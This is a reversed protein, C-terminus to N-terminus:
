GAVAARMQERLREAATRAAAAFDAGGSAYLIARSVAIITPADARHSAVAEALDGGQAGVGPVLLPLDPALERIRRLEQPSTAGVVLGCNGRTNWAHVRWVVYEYLSCITGSEAVMIDQLEAAGPNSTRCLIFVGRDSRELFPELAEGGLYPHVTIADFGLVDFLARAYQRNTHGVDGRKADGIVPIEPPVMERTRALCDLGPAGLAEYFALNPKYACVLDATAEVIARNFSLIGDVSRPLGTPLSGIDPDLGICLLSQQARIAKRLKELFTV